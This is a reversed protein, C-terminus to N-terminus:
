VCTALPTTVLHGTLSFSGVSSKALPTLPINFLVLKITAPALRAIILQAIAPPSGFALVPADPLEVEEVMCVFAADSADGAKSLLSFVEAVFAVDDAPVFDVWFLLLACSFTFLPKLGDFIILM